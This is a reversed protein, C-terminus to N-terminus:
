DEVPMAVPQWKADSLWDANIEMFGFSSHAVHLCKRGDHEARYVRVVLDAASKPTRIWYHGIATPHEVNWTSM